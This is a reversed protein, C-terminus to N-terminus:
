FSAQYDSLIFEVIVSIKGPAAKLVSLTRSRSTAGVNNLLQLLSQYVYSFSPVLLIVIFFASHFGLLRQMLFSLCELM